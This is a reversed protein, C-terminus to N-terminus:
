PSRRAGDGSMTRRYGKIGKSSIAPDHPLQSEGPSCFAKEQRELRVRVPPDFQHMLAELFFTEHDWAFQDYDRGPHGQWSVTPGIHHVDAFDGSRCRKGSTPGRKNFAIRYGTLGIAVTGMMPIMEVRHTCTSLPPGDPQRTKM